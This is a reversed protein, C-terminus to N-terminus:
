GIEVAFKSFNISENFRERQTHQANNRIKSLEDSSLNKIKSLVKLLDQSTPTEPLLFGNQGNMIIEPIGCIEPAICPIGFSMAEMISVPIGEFSSTNVVVSNYRNAELIQMLEASSKHGKFHKDDCLNKLSKLEPGSGFHVWKLGMSEIDKSANALVDVRKIKTLRSISIITDIPRELSPNFDSQNKVGLYAVEIQENWKEQVYKQAHSSISYTNDLTEFIFKRLPLYGTAYREEYVDYNHCRSIKRCNMESLALGLANEDTWYSYLLSDQLHNIRVYKKLRKLCSIGRQLYGFFGLLKRHHALLSIFERFVGRNSFLYAIVEFINVRVRQTELTTINGPLGSRLEGESKRPLIHIEDFHKALEDIELELFQESNGYPYSITLIVLTSKHM